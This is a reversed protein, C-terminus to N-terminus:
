RLLTITGKKSLLNRPATVDRYHIIWVYTAQPCPKGNYTGDWEDNMDDSHWLLAGGRSYLDISYDTIGMFRVYFTNNSNEGPTFVNPTWITAKRFPIVARASDHCLNYNAILLLSVSDDEAPNAVYSIRTDTGYDEDNVFWRHDLENTSRNIASLHLQDLTLFEPTFEINAHPQLLPSLHVSDSNPCTPYDNYDVYLIYHEHTLPKVRITRDHTHGILSPDDPHADWEFFPADTNATLTYTRTICDYEGWELKVMPPQLVHLNLLVISDCLHSTQLSDSYVGEQTYENGGFVYSVGQCITDFLETTTNHAVTLHLLLTSDCGYVTQLTLSPQDTSESYTLGDQWQFPGCSLISDTTTTSNHITLNLHIVSDCNLSSTLHVNPTFTSLTYDVSDIWRYSDCAIITDTTNYSPRLHVSYHTISDTGDALTVVTSDTLLTGGGNFTLGDWHLPLLNDCLSTDKQYHHNPHVFLSYTIVSDCAVTNLITIISDTITATSSFVVGGFTYPLQNEVITDHITAYSMANVQLQLTEISDCHAITTYLHTYTGSANYLSDGFPYPAGNCTTDVYSILYEPNVTLNRTVISDAGFLTHLTDIITLIVPLSTQPDLSFVTSDWTLPLLGQCVTSDVTVRVTPMVTLTFNVISDCGYQNTLTLQVQADATDSFTQGNFHYPLQHDSITDNILAYSVPYAWLHYTEISDCTHISQMHSYGLYEVGMRMVGSYDCITDYYTLNYNPYNAFHLHETSDCGDVSIFHRDYIGSITLTDGYWVFANSECVTDFFNNSYSPMVHLRMTVISDAGSAALLTDLLTAMRWRGEAPASDVIDQTFTRANWQMPLVESCITSDTSNHVNWIVNLRYSIISDCGHSNPITVLSDISSFRILTLTDNAVITVSNTDAFLTSDFIYGNFDFPLQREYITDNWSAFTNPMLTVNMTLLSDAGNTTTLMVSKQTSYNPTIFDFDNSDFTTSNWVLPFENECLISDASAVRNRWVNLHMFTISDCGDINVLITSDSLLMIAAETTDTQSAVFTVGNWVFPLQNEVVTDFLTSRTNPNVTLHLIVISDEGHLATYTVSRTMLLVQAEVTPVASTDFLAGQWTFPMSNECITSDLHTRQNLHVCLHYYITSDCGATNSIVITDDVILHTSLPDANVLLTSDYVEGNFAYPLQNEVITDYYQQDSIANVTLQLSVTSDCGFRNSHLFTWTNTGISTTLLSDGYHYTLNSCTTDSFGTSHTPHLSLHITITSDCQSSSTLLHPYNGALSYTSDLYSLSSNDCITDYRHHDFTPNVVLLRLVISDAGDSNTLTDTVSLTRPQLNTIYITDFTAGDWVFPLQNECITDRVTSRQNLNICLHYYITSDCGAANPIVITDNVFLSTSQPNANAILTTDYIAGNFTYPLQNEVITDYHINWTTDITHLQLVVNSDCNDVSPFLFHFTSTGAALKIFSTDAFLFPTNSCTTDYFTHSFTPRVTLHLTAVSDCGMTTFFHFPYEYNSGAALNGILSDAFSLTGNDCITDYLHLDFTPNIHVTMTVLSDSGRNTTLIANKTYHYTQPWSSTPTSFDYDAETFTQGNWTLPLQSRCITSDAITSVNPIITLSHYITSDCGAANLIVITDTITLSSSQGGLSTLTMSDYTIGNFTHPLQNEVITEEITSWSTDLVTLQLTVSSDCGDVSAFSFLITSLGSPLSAFSTDAIFFISNNCSSQEISHNYIPNVTLLRTVLSDAGDSNSLTINKEITHRGTQNYDNTTFITGDWNYPLQDACITDRVTNNVNWYITLWYHVISDCGYQNVLTFTHDTVEDAFSTDLFSHPLDNQRVTDRVYSDSVPNVTLSLSVTSDCSFISTYTHQYSGSTTLPQGAFLYTSNSCITLSVASDYVPHVSLNLTEISDCGYMSSLTYTYTNPLYHTTGCFTFSNGSCISVATDNHFSPHVTLHQIVISDANNYRHLIRTLQGQSTHTLGNWTFPLQNDCIATYIHTTVNHNIHLILHIASDCGNHNSRHMITDTDSYFSLNNFLFPLDNEQLTRVITTDTQANVNLILTMTSDCSQVQDFEQLIETATHTSTHLGLTNTQSASFHFDLTDFAYGRCIDARITDHMVVHKRMTMHIISDCGTTNNHFIYVHPGLTDYVVLPSAWNPPYPYSTTNDCFTYTPYENYTPHVTLNLTVLSDCNHITHESFLYSGSSHGSYFHHGRWIWGSDLQAQCITQNVTDNYQPMVKIPFAFNYNCFNSDQVFCFVTDSQVVNRIPLNNRTTSHNQYTWQPTNSNNHIELTTSNGPCLISDGSIYPPEHEGRLVIPISITDRCDNDAIGVVLTVNYTGIANYTMEAHYNTSTQGNGFDWFATECDENTWLPNGNGDYVLSHNTFRVSFICNNVSYSYSFDAHPFRPSALANITYGCNPDDCDTPTVRCLYLGSDTVSLQRSTSLVSDPNAANFWRYNFGEPAYFINAINDGCQQLHDIQKRSCHLTFYAYASTASSGDRTTLQLYLTKGHYNSLDIGMSMWDHWRYPTTSSGMSYTHWEPDGDYYMIDRCYCRPEVPLCNEDFLRISFRPKQYDLANNPQRFVLAYRLMMLNYDNTDVHIEYLICESSDPNWNGLRVSVTDGSPITRLLNNTHPDHANSDNNITHRSDPSNPGYNVVCLASDAWRRNGKYCSVQESGSFRTYDICQRYHDCTSCNYVKPTRFKRPPNLCYNSTDNYYNSMLYYTFETGMALTTLSDNRNYVTRTTISRSPDNSQFYKLTATSNGGMWSFHTYTTNTGYFNVDYIEPFCVNLQFGSAMGFFDSVFKLTVQGSYCFVKLTGSNTYFNEIPYDTSPGQYITLYNGDDINYYGTLTFPRGDASQLTLTANCDAPYDSYGGPDLISYSGNTLITITTDGTAPMIIQAAVHLPLLLLFLVLTFLIASKNNM